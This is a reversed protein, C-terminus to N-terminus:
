TREKFDAITENVAQEGKAPAPLIPRCFRGREIIKKGPAFPSAM